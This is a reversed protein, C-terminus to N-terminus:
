ENSFRLFLGLDNGHIASKWSKGFRKFGNMELIRVMGPNNSIETSAMLNNSGFQTLLLKVVRSGIGLGGFSPKTYLYGLEWEFKSELDVLAAKNVSFDSWTKVKIGGCAVPTDENYVICIIKCRDAKKSLEGQVKNQESLLFAFEKRQKDSLDSRNITQYTLNM